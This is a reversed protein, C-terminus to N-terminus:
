AGPVRVPAAALAADADAKRAVAQGEEVNVFRLITGGIVFFVIVMVIAMRHDGTTAVVVGFLAPGLIGAFKEGFSFFSFFEASKHRPVLSAFLSRSIAQSGGQVTAILGALVFFQTATQVRFAFLCIFVYTALGVYISRKAGIRTALAGFLFACPVGVVQALLLAGILAEKPLGLSAGFLVGMRIITMIGDNYVLFALTMLFTNRYGRLSRFTEGLRRFAVRIPGQGSREDAELVRPPEPVILLLPLAFAVWWAAVSLLALRTPLTADSPSLDPGSPLGFWAPRLIWALNLALLLGGGLYGLAYGAASVRDMEDERAVHPLLADYFVFTGSAAINVAGFLVLALLVDGQQVLFLGSVAAAGLALFTALLRKRIAKFDALAGLVPSIVTIVIMALTTALTFRATAEAEPVDKAVVAIFYAPFVASIITTSVASNAWDYTAWARLERRHLGLRELLRRAAPM